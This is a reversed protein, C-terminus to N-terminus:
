PTAALSDEVVVQLMGRALGALSAWESNSMLVVADGTTPSVLMHTRAKQQSGSHGIMLLDTGPVRGVTFGLGYSTMTGERTAQPTWMADFSEESLLQPDRRALAAALGAMDGVTSIFGGGGLKWSVDDSGSPRIEGAATRRYGVARHQAPRWEYDPQLTTLELLDTIRARVQEIFPEEGARQVVAALLMYGHTTYSYREGPECVLPSEKFADLALVVDEFPNPSDYTRRTRIVPGNTYHVIGGQHCLLHRPTITHQKDPFEPLYARIDRNLNLKGQEVLQMAAIATVPKSISAWRIMSRDTLPIERERDEFGFHITATVRGERVIGASLGVLGQETFAASLRERIATDVDHAPAAIQEGAAQPSQAAIATAVMASVLITLVLPWRSLGHPTNM